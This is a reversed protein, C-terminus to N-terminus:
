ECRELGDDCAYCDYGAVFAVDGRGTVATRGEVTRIRHCHQDMWLRDQVIGWVIAVFLLGGMLTWLAARAAPMWRM